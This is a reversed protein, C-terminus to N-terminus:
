SKIINNKKKKYEVMKLIGEIFQSAFYMWFIVLFAFHIWPSISRIVVTLLSNLHCTLIVGGAGFFIPHYWKFSILNGGCLGNICIMTISELFTGVVAGILFGLIPASNLDLYEMIYLILLAGVGYSPCYPGKCIGHNEFREETMASSCIGIVWGMVSYISFLLLIEYFQYGM